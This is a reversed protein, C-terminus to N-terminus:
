CPAGDLGTREKCSAPMRDLVITDDFSSPPEGQWLGDILQADEAVIAKRIHFEYGQVITTTDIERKALDVVVTSGGTVDFGLTIGSPEIVKGAADLTLCLCGGKYAEGIKGHWQGGIAALLAAEGGGGAGTSGGQGAGGAGGVGPTGGVGGGGPGAPGGSGTPGTAGAGNPSGAGTGDDGEEAGCGTALALVVVMTWSELRM